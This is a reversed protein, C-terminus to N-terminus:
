FPLDGLENKTKNEEPEPEPEVNEFNQNATLKKTIMFLASELQCGIKTNQRGVEALGTEEFAAAIAKEITAASLSILLSNDEAITGMGTLEAKDIPNKTRERYYKIATELNQAIVTRNNIDWIEFIRNKM